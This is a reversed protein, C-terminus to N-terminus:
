HQVSGRNTSARHTSELQRGSSTTSGAAATGLEIDAIGHWPSEPEHRVTVGGHVPIARDAAEAPRESIVVEPSVHGM